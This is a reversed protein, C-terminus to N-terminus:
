SNWHRHDDPVLEDSFDDGDSRVNSIEVRSFEDAAFAVYDASAAPVAEGATTVQTGM